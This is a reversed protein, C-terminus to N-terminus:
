KIADPTTSPTAGLKGVEAGILDPLTQWNPIYRGNLFFSPTSNVNRREAEQMDAQVVSAKARSKLCASFSDKNLSVEDALRLLTAQRLDTQNKFLLDHYEWFQGQDNACEAGLAASFANAHISLLPFHRYHFAIKDGYTKLIGDVIPQAARCAPCQFDSFEEVIITSKPDGKVPRPSTIDPYTPQSKYFWVSLVIVAALVILWTIKSKNSM